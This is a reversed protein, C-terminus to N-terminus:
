ADVEIVKGKAPTFKTNDYILWIIPQKSDVICGTNFYGDTFVINIKAKTTNIDQIVPEILTGGTTSFEKPTKWVEKIVIKESLETSFGCITMKEIPFSNHLGKLETLFKTTTTDSVSGSVDIYVNVSCINDEDTISPLYNDPYFRKNPKSFSYDEPMKDNFYNRLLRYWPLKPQVLKDFLKNFEPCGGGFNKSSSVTKAQAVIGKVKKTANLDSEILDKGIGGITSNKQPRRDDKLNKYVEETTSNLYKPNPPIGGSPLSFGLHDLQTNVITDAAINYLYPDLLQEKCRITHLLVIHACEHAIVGIQEKLSFQSLWNSNYYITSGDTACTDVEFSEKWTVQTAVSGLFKDKLYLKVRLKAMDLKAM